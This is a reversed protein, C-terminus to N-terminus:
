GAAGCGFATEGDVCGAGINSDSNGCAGKRTGTPDLGMGANIELECNTGCSGLTLPADAKAGKALRPRIETIRTTECLGRFLRRRRELQYQSAEIHIWVRFVVAIRQRRGGRDVFLRRARM